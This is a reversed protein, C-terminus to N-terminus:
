LPESSATLTRRRESNLIFPARFTSGAPDEGLCAGRRVLPDSIEGEKEGGKGGEIGLYVWGDGYILCAGVDAHVFECRGSGSSTGNLFRCAGTWKLARPTRGNVVGGATWPALM